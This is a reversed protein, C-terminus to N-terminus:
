LDEVDDVALVVRPCLPDLVQQGAGEWFVTKRDAQRAYLRIAERAAITRSGRRDVHGGHPSLEIQPGRSLQDVQDTALAKPEQM